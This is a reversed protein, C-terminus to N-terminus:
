SKGVMIRVGEELSFPPTWNLESRIKTSDVELNAILRSVADSKQFIWGMLKILSVPFHFLQCRVGLQKCIAKILAPSSLSHGDSILYTQNKAKPHNACLIMADLLNGLGIFDRKNNISALPMPISKSLVKLLAKM